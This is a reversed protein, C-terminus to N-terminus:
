CNNNADNKYIIIFYMTINLHKTKLSFDEQLSEFERWIPRCGIVEGNPRLLNHASPSKFERWIPSKM